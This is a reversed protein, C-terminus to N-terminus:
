CLSPTQHCIIQPQVCCAKELLTDIGRLGEDWKDGAQCSDSWSQAPVASMMCKSLFRWRGTNQSKLENIDLLFAPFGLRKLDSNSVM